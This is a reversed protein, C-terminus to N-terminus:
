LKKVPKGKKVLKLKSEHKGHGNVKSQHSHGDLKRRRRPGKRKGIREDKPVKPNNSTRKRSLLKGKVIGAWWKEDGTSTKPAM